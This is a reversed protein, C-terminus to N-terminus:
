VTVVIQKETGKQGSQGGDRVVAKGRDNRTLIEVCHRRLPMFSGLSIIGRVPGHQFLVATVVFRISSGGDELPSGNRAPPVLIYNCQVRKV